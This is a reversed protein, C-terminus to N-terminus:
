RTRGQRHYYYWTRNIESQIALSKSSSRRGLVLQGACALRTNATAPPASPLSQAAMLMTLIVVGVSRELVIGGRKGDSSRGSPHYSRHKIKRGGGIKM